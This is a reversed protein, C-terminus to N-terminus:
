GFGFGFGGESFGLGLECKWESGQNMRVSGRTHTKKSKKWKMNKKLQKNM